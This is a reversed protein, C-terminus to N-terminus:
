GAGTGAGTWAGELSLEFFVELFVLPELSLEFFVELFVLPELSLEFFVLLELFVEPARGVGAGAAAHGRMWHSKEYTDITQSSQLVL